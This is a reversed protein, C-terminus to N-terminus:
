LLVNELATALARDFVEDPQAGSISYKGNILFFPVGRIGISRARDIDTQVESDWSQNMLATEAESRNLNVGEVVQLLKESKSLDIGDTFHAKMFAEKLENAKGFQKSWQWLRHAKRTNFSLSKKFQFDIGYPKAQGALRNHMITVQEESYGKRESLYEVSPIGVGEPFDPDLQFSHWNIETLDAANLKSIARELKKKGIYCFPCVVDSWIEIKVKNSNM